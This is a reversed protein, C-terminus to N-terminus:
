GPCFPRNFAGHWGVEAETPLKLIKTCCELMEIIHPNACAALPLAHCPSTPCASAPCLRCVRRRDASM